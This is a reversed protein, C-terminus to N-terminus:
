RFLNRFINKFGDLYNVKLIFKFGHKKFSSKLASFYIKLVYVGDNMKKFNESFLEKDFKRLPLPIFKDPMIM